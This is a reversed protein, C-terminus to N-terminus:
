MGKLFTSLLLLLWAIALFWFLNATVIPIAVFYGVVGLVGLILSVTWWIKKPANLRM